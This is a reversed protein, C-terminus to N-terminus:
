ALAPHLRSHALLENILPSGPAGWVPSFANAAFGLGRGGARDLFLAAFSGGTSGNHWIIPHEGSPQDPEIIWGMGYRWPLGPQSPGGIPLHTERIAQSAPDDASAARLQFQGFRALDSLRGHVCGSPQMVPLDDVARADQTVPLYRRRLMSWRHEAPNKGTQPVIGFAATAMGAPELVRKQLLDPYSLRACRSAILGAIGYGLNSYLFGDGPPYLPKGSLAATVMAASVSPPDGGFALYRMLRILSPNARFGARHSLLQRLTVRAFASPKRLLKDALGEAITTDLSIRGEAVLAVIAASTMAKGISGFHWLDDAGAPDTQGARRVGAVLPTALEARSFEILGAAPLHYTERLRQLLAIPTDTRASM